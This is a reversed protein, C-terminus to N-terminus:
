PVPPKVDATRANRDGLRVDVVGVLEAPSGSRIASRSTIRGPISRGSASGPRATARSSRCGSGRGGLSGTRSSRRAQRQGSRAQRMASLKRATAAAGPAAPPPPSGSRCLGRIGVGERGLDLRQGFLDVLQEGMAFCLRLFGAAVGAIEGVCELSRQRDDGVCRGCSLVVEVSVTIRSAQARHPALDVMMEGACPRDSAARRALRSGAHPIADIRDLPSDVPKVLIDGDVDSAVLLGFDPDLPLIEVLHDAVEDLIGGFIAVAPHEDGDFAM